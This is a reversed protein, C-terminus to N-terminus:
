SMTLARLMAAQSFCLFLRNVGGGAGGPKHAVIELPIGRKEFEANLAQVMLHRALREGINRPPEPWLGLRGERLLVAAEEISMGNLLETLAADPEATIPEGGIPMAAGEHARLAEVLEAPARPHCAPYLVPTGQLPHRSQLIQLRTHVQETTRMCFNAGPIGISCRVDCTGPCGEAHKQYQIWSSAPIM